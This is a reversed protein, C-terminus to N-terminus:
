TRGYRTNRDTGCSCFCDVPLQLVISILHHELKLKQEQVIQRSCKQMQRGSKRRYDGFPSKSIKKLELGSFISRNQLPVVLNSSAMLTKIFINGASWSLPGHTWPWKVFHIWQKGGEWVSQANFFSIRNLAIDNEQDSENNHGFVVLWANQKDKNWAWIFCQSSMVFYVWEGTNDGMPWFLGLKRIKFLYLM